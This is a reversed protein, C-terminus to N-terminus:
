VSPYVIETTREAQVQWRFLLGYEGIRIYDGDALTHSTQPSLKQGNIIIGQNSDEDYIVFHGNERSIYAHHRSTQPDQDLLIDCSGARGLTTREQTLTIEQSESTTPSTITLYGSRVVTSSDSSIEDIVVATETQESVATSELPAEETPDPPFVSQETAIVESTQETPVEDLIESLEDLTTEDQAEQIENSEVTDLTESSEDLTTEDQAERTEEPEVADLSESPEDSPIENQVEQAEDSEIETQTEPLEDFSTGNQVESSGDFPTEDQSFTVSANTQEDSASQDTETTSPTESSPPLPDLPPTTNPLPEVVDPAHTPIVEPELPTEIPPVVPEPPSTPEIPLPPPTPSPHPLATDPPTQPPAAPQVLLQDTEKEEHALNTLDNLTDESIIFTSSVPEIDFTFPEAQRPTSSTKEVQVEEKVMETLRHMMANDILFTTSVPEAQVPLEPTIAREVNAVPELLAEPIQSSALSLPETTIELPDPRAATNAREALALATHLTDAFIQITPYREEPYASLARRIVGELELTVEANHTSLTPFSASRKAQEIEEPSGLFPMRGALWFYLITALAYQDSAATVRGRLQEPAATIPPRVIQPHGSRRVFQAMGVDALLFPAIDANQPQGANRLVMINSLTLSGHAHNYRHVNHLAQALQHTYAIAAKLPLPPSFWARGENNLLSGASFFRRVTYLQGSVEGYDLTAASHPHTLLSISQMDRFFQRRASDPLVTWPHILKLTVRRHLLQDEAEYSSGSIGNGLHRVVRYREFKQGDELVPM